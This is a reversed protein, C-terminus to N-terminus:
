NNDKKITVGFTYGPSYYEKLVGSENRLQGNQLYTVQIADGKKLEDIVKYYLSSAKKISLNDFKVGNVEIVIDGSKLGMDEAVSGPSVCNIKIGKQAGNGCAGFVLLEHGKHKLVYEESETIKLLKAALFELQERLLMVQEEKSKKVENKHEGAFASSQWAFSLIFAYIITFKV